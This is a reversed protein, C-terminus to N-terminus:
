NKKVLGIRQEVTPKKEAKNHHYGKERQVQEWEELDEVKLELRTPPRRLMKLKQFLFLFRCTQKGGFTFCTSFQL